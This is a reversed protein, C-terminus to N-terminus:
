KRSPATEDILSGAYRARPGYAALLEPWQVYFRDAVRYAIRGTVSPTTFQAGCEIYIFPVRRMKAVLMVPIAIEAGTSVVLGPREWNFHRWVRVVNAAFALPSYPKNPVLEANPLRRTTDADYCFYSIDHGDFAEHLQFMESLHGGHSCVLLIRLRSEPKANRTEPRNPLPRHAGAPVTSLLGELIGYAYPWILIWRALWRPLAVTLSRFRAALFCLTIALPLAAVAIGLRANVLCLLIGLLFMAAIAPIALTYRWLGGRFDCARMMVTIDKGMMRAKRMLGYFRTEYNHQVAAGEEFWIRQGARQLALAIYVDEAASHRPLNLWGGAARLAETRFYSNGGIIGQTYGTRETEVIFWMHHLWAAFNRVGVPPHRGTGAAVDPKEDLVRKAREVWEPVLICDADTFALYDTTCADLVANRAEYLGTANSAIVRAGYARAVEATPDSLDDLAVIVEDPAVTQRRVSDLCAGIIHQANRACIAVTITPM